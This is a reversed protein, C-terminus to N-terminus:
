TDRKEGIWMFGNIERFGAEKMLGRTLGTPRHDGRSSEPSYYINTAILRGNEALHKRFTKITEKADPVHEIVDLCVITDYTGLEPVQSKYDLLIMKVDARNKEFLFKAFRENQSGRMDLYTVKHGRRWLALSLDGIGAGYDLVTGKCQSIVWNRFRRQQLSMHWYALQAPYYPIKKYLEVEEEETKPGAQEWTEEILRGANKLMRKIDAPSTGYFRSLTEILERNWIVIKGQLGNFYSYASALPRRVFIPLRRGMWLAFQREM